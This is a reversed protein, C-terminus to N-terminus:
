RPPSVISSDTSIWSRSFATARPENKGTIGTHLLVPTPVSSNSSTAM